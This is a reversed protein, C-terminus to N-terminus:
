YVPHIGFMVHFYTYAFIVVCRFLSSAITQLLHLVNIFSLWIGQVFYYFVPIMLPLLGQIRM